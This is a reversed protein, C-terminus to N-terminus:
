RRCAKRAMSAPTPLIKRLEQEWGNQTPSYLWRACTTRIRRCFKRRRRLIKAGNGAQQYTGMLLELADEKMVSNPYQTLFAELGSIKAAPDQQGIAGMYANYEAPDKIEKKQPAAGGQTAGSQPQAPPQGAQPQAPTQQAPASQQPATSTQAVAATTAALVIALVSKNM